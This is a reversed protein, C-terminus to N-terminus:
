LKALEEDGLLAAMMSVQAKLPLRDTAKSLDLSYVENSSKTLELVQEFGRDQDFTCDQPISKLASALMDHFPSLVSQTFYDGIAIIRAKTSKEFLVHLKSHSGGTWGESGIDFM